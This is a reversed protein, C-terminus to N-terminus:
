RGPQLHANIEAVTADLVRRRAPDNLSAPTDSMCTYLRGRITVLLDQMAAITARAEDMTQVPRYAM